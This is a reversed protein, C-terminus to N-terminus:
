HIRPPYQHPVGRRYSRNTYRNKCEIRTTEPPTGPNIAIPTAIKVSQAYLSQPPGQILQESLEPNVLEREIQSFSTPDAAFSAM